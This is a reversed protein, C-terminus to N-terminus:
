IVYKYLICCGSIHCLRLCCASYLGINYDCCSLTLFDFSIFYSMIHFSFLYRLITNLSIYCLMAYYSTSTYITVSYLIFHNLIAYRLIVILFYLVCFIIYYLNTFITHYLIYNPTACYIIFYHKTMYSLVAYYSITHTFFLVM